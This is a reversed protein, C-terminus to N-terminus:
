TSGPNIHQCCISFARWQTLFATSLLSVDAPCHQSVCLFKLLCIFISTSCFTLNSDWRSLFETSSHLKYNAILFVSASHDLQGSALPQRPATCTLAAAELTSSSHDESTTEKRLVNSWSSRTELKWKQFDPTWCRNLDTEIILLHAPHPKGKLELTRQKCDFTHTSSAM